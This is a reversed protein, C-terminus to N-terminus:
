DNRFVGALLLYKRYKKRPRACRFQHPSVGSRAVVAGFKGNSDRKWEMWAGIFNESWKRGLRVSRHPSESAGFVVKKGAENTGKGQSATEHQFAYPVIALCSSCASQPFNSRIDEGILSFVFFPHLSSEHVSAFTGM